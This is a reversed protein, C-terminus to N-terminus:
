SPPKVLEQARGVVSQDFSLVRNILEQMAEGSLPDVEIDIKKADAVFSKDKMTADFARRLANVRDAPVDPPTVFPWAFAQPAMLLEMAQRDRATEAYDMIFPTNPLDPAKRVGMQLIINIKKDALWDRARSKVSGWSWGFRADVEGKEMAASIDNGGPYGTVLRIKAKTLNKTLLALVGTDDLYATAGVSIERTFADELSKVPVTHWTVAVAVESTTSGIANFRRGDYKLQANFYPAIPFNRPPMGIITGDRAAANYLHIVASTGGAGLLNQVVMTPKGPMHDGMSKALLRATADYTGGPSVGVIITITKGRYFDEVSQAHVVRTLSAAMVLGLALRGLLRLRRELNSTVMPLRAVAM